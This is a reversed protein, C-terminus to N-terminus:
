IHKHPHNSYTLVKLSIKKSGSTGREKFTSLSTLFVSVGLNKTIVLHGIHCLKGSTPLYHCAAFSRKQKVMSIM